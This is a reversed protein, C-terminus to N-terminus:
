EVCSPCEAGDWGIRWGAALALDSQSETLDCERGCLECIIPDDDDPESM